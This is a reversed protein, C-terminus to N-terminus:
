EPPALVRYAPDPFTSGHSGTFDRFVKFGTDNGVGGAAQDVLAQATVELGADLFQQIGARGAAIDQQDIILSGVLEALGRALDPVPNEIVALHEGNRGELPNVPIMFENSRHNRQFGHNVQSFAMCRHHLGIGGELVFHADTKEILVVTLIGTGRELIPAHRAGQAIDIEQNLFAQNGIHQCDARGGSVGGGGGCEVGGIQGRM